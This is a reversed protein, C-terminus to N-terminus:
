RLRLLNLNFRPDLTRELRRGTPILFTELTVSVTAALLHGGVLSLDSRGLVVHAHVMPGQATHAVNGLLSVVELNERFERSDYRREAPLFFGVRAHNVAGIGRLEAGQLKRDRAFGLISDLVEEGPTLKLVFGGREESWNM